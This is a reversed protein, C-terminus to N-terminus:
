KESAAPAPNSIEPTFRWEIQFSETLQQFLDATPPKVAYRAAGLATVREIDQPSNSSSLVVVLPQPVDTRGRLWGLVDFGSKRPLKLDLFVVLPYPFRGRDGFEGAGALYDIARQGDEIVFVPNLIGASKLAREMLFVDDENDEVLLITHNAPPV